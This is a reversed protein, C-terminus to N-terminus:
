HIKKYLRENIRKLRVIESELWKEREFVINYSEKIVKMEQILHLQIKNIRDIESRLDQLILDMKEFRTTFDHEILSIFEKVSKKVLSDKYMYVIIVFGCCIGMVFLLIEYLMSGFM